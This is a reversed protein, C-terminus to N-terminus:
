NRCSIVKPNKQSALSGYAHITQRGKAINKMSTELGNKHTEILSKLTKNQNMLLRIHERINQIVAKDDLIDVPDAERSFLAVTKKLEEFGAQREMMQQELDPLIQADFSEIHNAQLEDLKHLAKKIQKLMTEMINNGKQCTDFLFQM